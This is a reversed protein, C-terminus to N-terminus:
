ALVRHSNRGSCQSLQTETIIYDLLADQTDSPVQPVLQFDYALGIRIAGALIGGFARDYYGRGRGLRHGFRDFGVGPTLVIDREGVRELLANGPPIGIDFTGPTLQDEAYRRVFELDRKDQPIRPYYVVKGQDRAVQWIGDTEIENEHPSYLVVTRASQFFDHACVGRCVRQSKEAVESPAVDCRRQLLLRRLRKKETQLTTLAAPM